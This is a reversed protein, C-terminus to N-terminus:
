ITRKLEQKLDLLLDNQRMAVYQRIKSLMFANPAIYLVITENVVSHITAKTSIPTLFGQQTPIYFSLEFAEKFLEKNLIKASDEIKAQFVVSTESISNISGSLLKIKNQLLMASINKQAEVRIHSRDLPSADLFELQSLMIVSKFPEIKVIKAKIINPVKDHEIYTFNEKAYYSVKASTVLIQAVGDKFDVIKAKEEIPIGNYLNHITVNPEKKFISDLMDNKSSTEYFDFELTGYFLKKRSSLRSMVYYKDLRDLLSKYTDNQDFLTIGIHPLELKFQQSIAQEIKRVVRKAHHIKFDRLILLFTDTGQQLIANFGAEKYIFAMIDKFLFGNDLDVEFGFKAICFHSQQEKAFSIHAEIIARNLYNNISEYRNSM